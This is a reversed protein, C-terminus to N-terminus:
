LCTFEEVIAYYDPNASDNYKDMAENADAWSLFVSLISSENSQYCQEVLIFVLM